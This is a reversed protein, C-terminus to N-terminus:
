MEKNFMGHPARGCRAWVCQVGGPGGAGLGKDGAGNHGAAWALPGRLLSQAGVQVRSPEIKGGMLGLHLHLFLYM